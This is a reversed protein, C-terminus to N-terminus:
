WLLVSQVNIFWCLFLKTWEMFFNAPSKIKIRHMLLSYKYIETNWISETVHGQIDQRGSISLLIVDAVKSVEPLTSNVLNSFYVLSCSSNGATVIKPSKVEDATDNRMQLSCAWILNRRCKNVRSRNPHIPLTLLIIDRHDDRTPM